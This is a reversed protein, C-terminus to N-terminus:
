AEVEMQNILKAFARLADDSHAFAPRFQISNLIARDAHLVSVLTAACRLPQLGFGKPVFVITQTQTQGTADPRATFVTHFRVPRLFTLWAISSGHTTFRAEVDARRTATIWRVWKSRPRGKITLQLSHTDIQELTAADTFALGHLKDLHTIDLGNAIALHPHCNLHLPPVRIRRYRGASDGTDFDPLEFAPKLGNYIWILGFKEAVTYSRARRNPTTSECPAEVCRGEGDFRWHHFACRLTRDVVHGLSLDAGLHPCVADMAHVTGEADRWVAFRRGLMDVGAVTGRKLKRGPMVVYWSRVIRGPDCFAGAASTGLPQVSGPLTQRM